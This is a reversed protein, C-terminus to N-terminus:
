CRRGRDKEDEGTKEACGFGSIGRPLKEQTGYQEQLLVENIDYIERPILCKGTM